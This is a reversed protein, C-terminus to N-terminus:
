WYNKDVVRLFPSNTASKDTRRLDLQSVGYKRIWQRLQFQIVRLVKVYQNGNIDQIENSRNIPLNVGYTQFEFVISNYNHTRDLPIFLDPWWAFLTKTTPVTSGNKDKKLFDYFRAIEKEDNTLKEKNLDVRELGVCFMCRGNFLRPINNGKIGVNVGFLTYHNTFERPVHIPVNVQNLCQHHVMRLYKSAWLFFDENFKQGRPHANYTRVGTWCNSDMRGM